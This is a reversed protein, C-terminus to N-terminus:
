FHRNGPRNLQLLYFHAIGFIDSSGSGSDLACHLIIGNFSFKVTRFDDFTQTNSHLGICMSEPQLNYLPAVLLSVSSFVTFVYMCIFEISETQHWRLISTCTSRSFAFIMHASNLKGINRFEICEPSDNHFQHSHNTHIWQNFATARKEWNTEDSKYGFFKCYDRAIKKRM